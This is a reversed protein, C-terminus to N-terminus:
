GPAPRDPAFFVDRERAVAILFAVASVAALSWALMGLTPADVLGLWGCAGVALALLTSPVVSSAAFRAREAAVANDVGGYSLEASLAVMAPVALAPHEDLLPVLAVGHVVAWLVRTVDQLRLGAAVIRRGAGWLYDAGSVWTLGVMIMFIWFAAELPELWFSAVAIALWMIAGGLLWAPPLGRRKIAVGAAIVSMTVACALQVRPMWEVPKIFLAFYFAAVGGMQVVTKLKGLQSTKLAQKRVAMSTRLATILLERVFLAGAAWGPCEGHAVLPLLLMAIFLKDAVPDLLSGLVTPGQRRALWGDVFDTAGVVVGVVFAVWMWPQEPRVILAWAPFPLALIRVVTIQNATIRM